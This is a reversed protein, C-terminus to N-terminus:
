SATGWLERHIKDPDESVHSTADLHMVQRNGEKYPLWEPLGAGNPDGTWAFRTLTGSWRAALSTVEPLDPDYIAFVMCDSDAYSNFTFAMECAHMSETLKGNYELTTPLDFRYLWSGVGAQFASEAIEVAIRRFSDTMVIEFLRKANQEPYAARIGEVYHKPDSDVWKAAGPLMNQYRAIDEENSDPPTFLTGETRNTGVVIPVGNKGKELIAESFPRTVVTGDIAHGVPLGAEIIEQASMGRLKDLLESQDVGLNEAMEETKDGGPWQPGNPSHAIAKHFLGDAAPAANLGLVAIGGASEGFITVNDSNGGYDTINDRVWELALIMDRYGNSVSGELEEGLPSLDTFGFPGLRYNIIVVVVDGQSALVRGDYENASGNAFGGGHIWVMVPRSEGKTSPTYINLFLCDESPEGPVTQGMSGLAKGPIPRTPYATADLIDNWGDAAVPPMFRSPPKGYRIGLLAYSSDHDIGRVKGLRTDITTM